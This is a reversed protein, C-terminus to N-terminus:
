DCGYEKRFVISPIYHRIVLSIIFQLEIPTAGGVSKMGEFDITLLSDM